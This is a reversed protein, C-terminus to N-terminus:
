RRVLQIDFRTDGNITVDRWGPGAYFGGFVSAPQGAPDDYGNKSVSILTIGADVWPQYSCPCVWVPRFSFFGHTDTAIDQDDTLFVRVGEIPMRGTPTVEYVVGSLTVDAVTSAPGSPVVVPPPQTLPTPQTPSPSNRDCGLSMGVLAVLSTTIARRLVGKFM